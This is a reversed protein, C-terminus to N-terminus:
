GTRVASLFLNLRPYGYRCEASGAALVVLNFIPNGHGRRARPIRPWSETTGYGFTLFRLVLTEVVLVRVFGLWFGTGAREASRRFAGKKPKPTEALMGIVPVGTHFHLFLRDAAELTPVDMLHANGRGGCLTRSAAEVNTQIIQIDTFLVRSIDAGPAIDSDMAFPRDNTALYGAM